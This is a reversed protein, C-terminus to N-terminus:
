VAARLMVCRIFDSLYFTSIDGDVLRASTEIFSIFSKSTKRYVDIRSGRIMM